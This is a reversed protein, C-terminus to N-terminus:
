VIQTGQTLPLVARGKSNFHPKIGLSVLGRVIEVPNQHAVMGIEGILAYLRCDVAIRVVLGFWQEFRNQLRQPGGIPAHHFAARLALRQLQIQRLPFDQEMFVARYFLHNDGVPEIGM